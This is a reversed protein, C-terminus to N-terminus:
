DNHIFANDGMVYCCRRGLPESLSHRPERLQLSYSFNLENVKESRPARQLGHFSCKYYSFVYYPLVSALTMKM